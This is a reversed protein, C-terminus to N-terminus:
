PKNLQGRAAAVLESMVSGKAESYGLLRGKGLNLAAVKAASYTERASENDRLYDRLAINNTWHTGGRRVIHVNFNRKGRFRLYIRKPVGADGLNEYGLACIGRVLAEPPPWNGSGIMLDIVPKSVLGPVATSGIHQILGSKPLVGFALAIRFREQDYVEPWAEDYAVLEVAEDLVPTKL